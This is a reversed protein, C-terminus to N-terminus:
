GTIFFSLTKFSDNILKAFFSKFVALFNIRSQFYYKGKFRPFIFFRGNRNRELDSPSAGRAKGRGQAVGQSGERACPVEEGAEAAGCAARERGQRRERRAFMILFRYLFISILIKCTREIKTRLPRRQKRHSGVGERRGLLLLRAASHVKKPGLMKNAPLQPKM